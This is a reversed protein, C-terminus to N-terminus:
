HHMFISTLATGITAILMVGGVFWAVVESRGMSQRAVGSETAKLTAIAAALEKIALATTDSTKQISLATADALSSIKQGMSAIAESIAPDAVSAKGGAAWRFQELESVRKDFTAQIQILQTGVLGSTSKVSEALMDSIRSEYSQRLQALQDIRASEAMRLEAAKRAEADRAFKQFRSEAERLGDQRISEARVLDLVNKTPDIVANGAADIGEGPIYPGIPEDKRAM